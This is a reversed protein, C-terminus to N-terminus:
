YSDTILSDWFTNNARWQSYPRINGQYMGSDFFVTGDKVLDIWSEFNIPNGFSIKYYKGDKDKICKFWGNQNFKRELKVKISNREWRAIVLKEIQMNKPIIMNKDERLDNIYSYEVIINNNDDVYLKQGFNSYRNLKPCPEGSWSYRDKSENYKGFTKIFDDRGMNNSIDKYIYYDASWDGFTTKGSTTQNKMEYGYLDPNNDANHPIGMQTELWHGERGDHRTNTNILESKKGRVNKNFLRIIEEKM